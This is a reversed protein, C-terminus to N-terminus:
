DTTPLVESFPDIRPQRVCMTTELPFPPRGKNGAPAHASVLELLASWLVVPNTEGLPERARVRKTTLKLGLDAQKM